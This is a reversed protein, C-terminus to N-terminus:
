DYCSVESLSPLYLKQPVRVSLTLRVTWGAGRRLGKFLLKGQPVVGNQCSSSVQKLFAVIVPGVRSYEVSQRM